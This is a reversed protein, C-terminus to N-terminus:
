NFFNTRMLSLNNANSRYLNVRHHLEDSTQGIYSMNCVFCKIKYVVNNFKCFPTYGLPLNDDVAAAM